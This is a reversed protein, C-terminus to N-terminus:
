KEIVMIVLSNKIPKGTIFDRNVMIFAFKVKIIVRIVAIKVMLIVINDKAFYNPIITLLNILNISETVLVLFAEMGAVLIHRMM